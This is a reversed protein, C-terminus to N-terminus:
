WSGEVEMSEIKEHYSFSRELEAQGRHNNMNWLDCQETAVIILPFLEIAKFALTTWHRLPAPNTLSVMM